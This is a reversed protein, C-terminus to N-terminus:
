IASYINLLKFQTLLLIELSELAGDLKAKSNETLERVYISQGFEEGWPPIKKM